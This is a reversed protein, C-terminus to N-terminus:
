EYGHEALLNAIAQRVVQGISSQTKEAVKKLGQHQEPKIKIPSLTSAYKAM